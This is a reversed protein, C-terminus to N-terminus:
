VISKARDLANQVEERGFLGTEVAEELVSELWDQCNWVGDPAYVQTKEAITELANRADRSLMAISIYTLSPSPQVTQTLPGWNTLHGQGVERVIHVRRCVPVRDRGPTFGVTWSLTWHNAKSGLDTDASSIIGPGDGQTVVISVELDTPPDSFLHDLSAPKRVGDPQGMRPLYM